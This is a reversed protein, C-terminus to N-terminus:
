TDSTPNQFSAAGSRAKIQEAGLRTDDDQATAGLEGLLKLIEEGMHCAEGWLMRASGTGIAGAISVPASHARPRGDAPHTLDASHRNVNLVTAIPLPCYPSTRDLLKGSIAQTAIVHCPFTGGGAGSTEDGSPFRFRNRRSLTRTGLKRGPPAM